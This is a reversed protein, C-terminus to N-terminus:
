KSRERGAGPERAKKILSPCLLLTTLNEVPQGRAALDASLAKLQRIQSSKLGASKMLERMLKGQHNTVKPRAPRQQWNNIVVALLGLGVIAALFGLMKRGDVSQDVNSSISKFVDEQTPNAIATSCLVLMLSAVLLFGLSSRRALFGSLWGRELFGLLWPRKLFGLSWPRKLFGLSWPGLDWPFGLSWHGIVLGSNAPLCRERHKPNPVQNKPNLQSKPGQDNPKRKPFLEDPNEASKNM